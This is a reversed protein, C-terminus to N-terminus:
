AEPAIADSLALDRVQHLFQVIQEPLDTPMEPPTTTSALQELYEAVRDLPPGAEALAKLVAQADNTLPGGGHRVMIVSHVLANLNRTAEEVAEPPEASALIQRLQPLLPHNPVQQQLVEIAHILLPTAEESRELELLLIALNAETEATSYHDKGGYIVNEIEVVRQFTKIAEELQGEDYLLTALHNLSAAVDPHEETGYVLAQIELARELRSRAGALDGQAQLLIALAQMSIAVSPHEETGHVLAKIELSQDLRSRAGELDGQARLVGALEHLSTAVDPHEKTGYVRAKIELSRELRSRAGPLDGQDRLVRALEHLSAAVSPHEETGHVRAWIELARELRSRAGPLDGQARLLGSFAHLLGSLSVDDIGNQEGIEEARAFYGRGDKLNGAYQETEGAWQNARVSDPFCAVHRLALERNQGYLGQQHLATRIFGAFGNALDGVCGSLAHEWGMQANALAWGEATEIVEAWYAAAIAHWREPEDVELVPEVLPSVRYAREVGMRGVELLGYNALAPLHRELDIDLGVAIDRYAVAPVPAEYVRARKVFALSDPSVSRRAEEFAMHHLFLRALQQQVAEDGGAQRWDALEERAAEVLRRVEQPTKGSILQRAWDLIRANRGLREALDLWQSLSVNQFEGQEVQGRMWLKRLAGPQFPGLEIAALTDTEGTPMEFTATTTIVLKPRGVRCAPLLVGLLQAAYPSLRAHGNPVLDLNQEFDDLIVVVRRQSWPSRLVQELRQPVSAEARDLIAQVAEDRWKLALLRFQEIVQYDTLVGHLVVLGVEGVDQVHRDIARGALCSKGVGKMGLIFAGARPTQGAKGHRLIRVLRQLERRRGVFGRQLVKMQGQQDLFRYIDGAISGEEGQGPPAHPDLQFGMPDHTVLHLTGWALSPRQTHRDQEFLERRSFGVAETSPIGACLREYLDRVALTAIDDRVPRVWGVM